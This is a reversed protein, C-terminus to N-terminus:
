IEDENKILSNILDFYKKYIKNYTEKVTPRLVYGRFEHYNNVYLTDHDKGYVKKIHEMALHDALEKVNINAM